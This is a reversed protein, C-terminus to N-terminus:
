LRSRITHRVEYCDCNVCFNRAPKGIGRVWSAFSVGRIQQVGDRLIGAIKHDQCCTGDEGPLCWVSQAPLVM